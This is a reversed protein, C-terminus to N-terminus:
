RSLPACTRPLRVPSPVRVGRVGWSCSRGTRCVCRLSHGAAALAPSVYAGIGLVASSTGGPAGVTSLAPGANGAHRHCSPPLPCSCAARRAAGPAASATSLVRLSWSGASGTSLVRLSMLPCASGGQAHLMCFGVVSGFGVRFWVWRRLGRLDRQAQLGAGGGAPHLPRCNPNTALLRTLASPHNSGICRSPLCACPWGPQLTRRPCRSRQRARGCGQGGVQTPPPRPKEM